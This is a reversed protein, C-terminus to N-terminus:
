AGHFGSASSPHIWPWPTHVEGVAPKIFMAEGVASTSTWRHTSGFSRARWSEAPLFRARCPFWAHPLFVRPAICHWICYVTPMYALSPWFNALNVLICLGNALSNFLLKSSKKFFSHLAWKSNQHFNQKM